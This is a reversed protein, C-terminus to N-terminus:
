AKLVYVNALGVIGEDSWFPAVIRQYDPGEFADLRDWHAPLEVSTLLEAEVRPGDPDWDLAPYGLGAGWGRDHLTGTVWGDQWAGPLAALLHHNERGRRLSGYM